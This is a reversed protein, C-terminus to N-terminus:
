GWIGYGATVAPSTNICLAQSKRININLGSVQQYESYIQLLPCVEEANSLRLPKLNDDVFLFPGVNIGGETNYMLNRNNQAISLNLPEAALLFLISSLPDGQGSGTKITIVLGKRGNVEVYAYGVLAFCQLASITIEPFNISLDFFPCIPRGSTYNIIPPLKYHCKLKEM